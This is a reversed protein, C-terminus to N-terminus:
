PQSYFISVCVCTMHAPMQLYRSEFGLVHWRKSPDYLHLHLRTIACVTSRRERPQISDHWRSIGDAKWWKKKKKKELVQNGYCDLAKCDEWRIQDVGEEEAEQKVEEEEIEELLRGRRTWATTFHKVAFRCTDCGFICIVPLLDAYNRWKARRRGEKSGCIGLRWRAMIKVVEEMDSM